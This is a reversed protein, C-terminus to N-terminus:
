EENQPLSIEFIAGSDNNSVSLEGDCHEEIIVKSMYLGLGTGDKKTKTSFYPDFVKEIIEDAIGGANDSVFLSRDRTSINITPNKVSRELLADESNKVLNLLVHKLENPFTHFVVDSNKDLNITINKNKISVSVINLVSEIVENYTIDKKIKVPKFFERFDDITKSLHQAYESIKSSHELAAEVDLKNLMAQLTLAGSTASIASLPQRWQHAIMSIMEGMQALRSQELLKKDKERNKDVEEKVKQELTANIHEIENTKDKLSAIRKKDIISLILIIIFVILLFSVTYTFANDLLILSSVIKEHDVLSFDIVIIAKVKEDIIIPKIYTMWVSQTDTHNFYFPKKTKYVNEWENFDLPDYYEEFESKEYNDKAGDLLFRFEKSNDSAKDVVYIYRYRDTVFTQLMEELLTRLEESNKLSKYINKNTKKIILDSINSTLNDIYSLRSNLNNNTM